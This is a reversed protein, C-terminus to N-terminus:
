FLYAFNSNAQWYRGSFNEGVLVTAGLSFQFHDNFLYSAGFYQEIIYPFNFSIDHDDFSGVSFWPFYIAPAYSLSLDKTIFIGVYGSLAVTFSYKWENEIVLDGNGCDFDGEFTDCFHLWPGELSYKYRGFGLQLVAGTEFHVGNYGTSLRMYPFPDLGAGLSALWVKSKMLHDYSVTVPFNKLHYAIDAEERPLTEDGQAKKNWVDHLKLTETKQIKVQLSIRNVTTDKGVVYGAGVFTPPVYVDFEGTHVNVQNFGGCGVLVLLFLLSLINLRSFLM